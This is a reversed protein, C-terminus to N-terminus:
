EKHTNYLEKEKYYLDIANKQKFSESGNKILGYLSTRWKKITDISKFFHEAQEKESLGEVIKLWLNLEREKLKYKSILYANFGDKFARELEARKQRKKNQQFMIFIVIALLSTSILFLLLILQKRKNSEIENKLILSEQQALEREKKEIEYKSTIEAIKELDNKIYLSDSITAYKKLYEYANKTDKLKAYESAIKKYIVHYDEDPNNPMYQKASELSFDAKKSAGLKLQLGALNLYSSVVMSSDKLTKAITISKEFSLKANTYDGLIEYQRAANLEARSIQDKDNIAEASAKSLLFNKLSLKPEKLEDHLAGFLNYTVALGTQDKMTLGLQLANELNVSAKDYINRKLYTTALQNYAYLQYNENNQEDAKELTKIFYNTAAELRNANLANIGLNIYCNIIQKDGEIHKLIDVAKLYLSDAKKIENQRAYLTALNSILAGQYSKDDIDRFIELSNHYSEESKKFDGNILQLTGRMRYGLAEYKKTKGKSFNILSDNFKTALDFNTYYAAIGIEALIKAKSTDQTVKRFEITLSDIKSQQAVIFIPFLICSVLLKYTM